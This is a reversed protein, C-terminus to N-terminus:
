ANRQTGHNRQAYIALVYDGIWFQFKTANVPNIRAYASHFDM